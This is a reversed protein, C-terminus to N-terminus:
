PLLEAMGAALRNEDLTFGEFRLAGRADKLFLTPVSTVSLAMSVARETDLLRLPSVSEPELAKEVQRAKQGVYVLIFDLGRPQFEPLLRDLVEDLKRCDTCWTTTFVIVAARGATLKGLFVERGDLTTLPLDPNLRGDLSIDGARATGALVAAALLAMIGLTLLNRRKM